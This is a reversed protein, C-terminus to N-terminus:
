IDEKEEPIEKEPPDNEDEGGDWYDEGYIESADWHNFGIPLSSDYNRNNPYNGFYVKNAM